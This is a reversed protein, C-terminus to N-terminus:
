ADSGAEPSGKTGAIKSVARLCGVILFYDAFGFPAVIVYTFDRNPWPIYVILLVNIAAVGAVAGWFWPQRTWKLNMRVAVILTGLACAAVTGRGPM